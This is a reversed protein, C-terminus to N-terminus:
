VVSADASVDSSSVWGITAGSSSYRSTELSLPVYTSASGGSILGDVPRMWASSFWVTATVPRSDEWFGFRWFM